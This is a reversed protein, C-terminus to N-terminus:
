DHNNTLPLIFNNRFAKLYNDRVSPHWTMILEETIAQKKSIDKLLGGSIFAMRTGNITKIIKVVKKIGNETLPIIFGRSQYVQANIEKIIKIINDDSMSKEWSHEFKEHHHRNNSDNSYLPFPYTDPIVDIENAEIQQQYKDRLLNAIHKGYVNIGNTMFCEYIINAEQHTLKFEEKLGKQFSQISPINGFNTNLYQINVNNQITQNINNYNSNNNNGNNCYTNNSNNGNGKNVNFLEIINRIEDITYTKNDKPEEMSHVKLNHRKLNYKNSFSLNCEICKIKENEFADVKELDGKGSNRGFEERIIGVTKESNKTTNRILLHKKSKLHREYNDNRNTIYDCSKCYFNKHTM